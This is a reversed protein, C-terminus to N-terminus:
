RAIGNQCNVYGHIPKREWDSRERAQKSDDKNGGSKYDGVLSM